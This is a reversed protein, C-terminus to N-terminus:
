GDDLAPMGLLSRLEAARARKAAADLRKQEDGTVAFDVEDKAAQEELYMVVERLNARNTDDLSDTPRTNM